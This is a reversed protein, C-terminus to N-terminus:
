YRSRIHVVVTSDSDSAIKSFNLNEDRIDIKVNEITQVSVPVYQLNTIETHLLGKSNKFPITKIVPVLEGKFNQPEVINCTIVHFNPTLGLNITSYSPLTMEGGTFETGDPIGFLKELFSSLNIFANKDSDDEYSISNGDYHFSIDKDALSKNIESILGTVSKISPEKVVVYSITEQFVVFRMRETNPINAYLEEVFQEEAVNRGSEYVKKVFGMARSFDESMKVKYGPYNLNLVFFEERKETVLINFSIGIGRKKFDQNMHEIFYEISGPTKLVYHEAQPRVGYKITADQKNEFINVKITDIAPNFFAEVLALEMHKGESSVSNVLKNTFSYNLNEPFYDHSGSSSLTLYTSLPKASYKIM